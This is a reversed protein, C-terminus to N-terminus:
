VWWYVVDKTPGLSGNSVRWSFGASVQAPAPKLFEFELDELRTPSGEGLLYFPVPPGRYLERKTLSGLGLVTTDRETEGVFVWM